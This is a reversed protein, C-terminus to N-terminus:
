AVAGRLWELYAENGAVIPTAVICPVEYSHLAEVKKKLDEFMASTTKFILVCETEREIKGEWRFISSVNEFINACAALGAEVVALGIEEAEDRSGTTVYVSLFESM